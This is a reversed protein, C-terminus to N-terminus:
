TKPACVPSAVFGVMATFVVLSMVHPKTLALYESARNTVAMLRLHVSAADVSVSPSLSAGPKSISKPIM